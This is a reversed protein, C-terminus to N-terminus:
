LNGAGFYMADPLIIMRYMIMSNDFNYIYNRKVVSFIKIKRGYHTFLTYITHVHVKDAFPSYIVNVSLIYM